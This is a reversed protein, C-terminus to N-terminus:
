PFKLKRSMYKFIRSFGDLPLLTEEHPRVSPCVPMFLRITTKEM